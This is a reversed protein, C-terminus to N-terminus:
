TKLNALVAFFFQGPFIEEDLHLNKKSDSIKSIKKQIALKPSFPM